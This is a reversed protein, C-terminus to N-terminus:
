IEFRFSLMPIIKRGRDMAMGGLGGGGESLGVQWRDRGDNGM